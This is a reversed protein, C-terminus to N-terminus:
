LRNFDEKAIKEIEADYPTWIGQSPRSTKQQLQIYYLYTQIDIISVAEGAQNRQSEFCPAILWLVPGSGAPPLAAPTAVPTGCVTLAVGPRPAPQAPPQQAYAAPVFVATVVSVLASLRKFM